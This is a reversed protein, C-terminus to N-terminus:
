SIDETESPETEEDDERRLSELVQECDRCAAIVPYFRTQLSMESLSCTNGCFRCKFTVEKTKDKTM